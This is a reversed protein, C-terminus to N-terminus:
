TNRHESGGSRRFILLKSFVYNLIIVLINSFVKVGLGWLNLQAPSVLRPGLWNVGAIMLIEDMVGTGVRCAIFSAFERLAARGSARSHFVWRRNPIYAVLVSLGWAAANAIGTTVGMHALGGYVAINVLTTIGGFFLYTLVEAYRRWYELLLKWLRNM